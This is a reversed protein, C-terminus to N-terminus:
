GLSSVDPLLTVLPFGCQQPCRFFSVDADYLRQERFFGIYPHFITAPFGGQHKGTFTIV